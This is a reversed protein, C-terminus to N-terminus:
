PKLDVAAKYSGDMYFPVSSHEHTIKWQGDIKHFGLTQRFWLDVKSGDTTTARMQNLSHCFAVDDGATINLARNEYDIPGQFSSFWKELGQKDFPNDRTYQLPPALIFKVNDPAYHSVVGEANKARMASAWNDILTRIQTKDNININTNATSMEREGQHIIKNELGKNIRRVFFGDCSM